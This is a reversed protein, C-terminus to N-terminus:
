QKNCVFLSFTSLYKIFLFALRDFSIDSIQSQNFSLYTLSIKNILKLKLCYKIILNM